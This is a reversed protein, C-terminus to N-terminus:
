DVLPLHCSSLPFSQLTLAPSLSASTDPSICPFLAPPKLGSMVDFCPDRPVPAGHSTQADPCPRALSSLDPVSLDSVM